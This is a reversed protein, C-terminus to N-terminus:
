WDPDLQRPHLIPGTQCLRDSGSKGGSRAPDFEGPGDSPRRYTKRPRPGRKRRVAPILMVRGHGISQPAFRVAPMMKSRLDNHRKEDRESLTNNIRPDFRMADYWHGRRYPSRAATMERVSEPDDTVIMNPGIRAPSGLYSYKTPGLNRSRTCRLNTGYKRLVEYVTLYLNGKATASFLWLESFGALRPGPIHRLKWYSTITRATLYLVLVAVSAAAAPWVSSSDSLSLM